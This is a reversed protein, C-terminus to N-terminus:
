EVSMRPLLALTEPAPRSGLEKDLLRVMADYHRRAADRMGLNLLTEIKFRHAVEATPALAINADALDLAGSPSGQALTWAQLWSHAQQWQRQLREGPMIAWPEHHFEGFLSGRYVGIIAQYCTARVAEDAGQSQAWAETFRQLDTRVRIAQNLLYRGDRWLVLGGGSWRLNGPDLAKRLRNILTLVASRSVDQDPYLWDTLNDRSLGEPSLLLMALIMKTKHGQWAETAVPQGSIAVEFRGFCRIELEPAPATPAPGSPTDDGQLLPRYGEQESLVRCETEAEAAGSVDGMGRRLTTQFRLAQALRWHYGLQRMRDVLPDIVAAAESWNQAALALQALPFHFDTMAPHSLPLARLAIAARCLQGAAALDGALRALESQGIQCQAALANDGVRVAWAAAAAYDQQAGAVDGLHMLTRGRTFRLQAADRQFNLATALSLGEEVQALAHAHDGRYNAVSAWNQYIVPQPARGAARAMDIARRYDGEAAAFRGRRTAILGLNILVKSQGLADEAKAFAVLAETLAAEAKDAENAGVWHLGLVNLAFARGWHDSLPLLRLAVEASERDGPRGTAGFVAGLLARARGAILPDVHDALDQLCAETQQFAGHQRDVEARLLRWWPDSQAAVPFTGLLDALGGTDGSTLYRDAEQQLVQLADDPQGNALHMAIASVPDLQPGAAATIARREAATFRDEGLRLLCSRFLPHFVFSGNSLRQVFLHRRQMSGINAAAQDDGLARRCLEPELEPLLAAKLMFTQLAGSQRHFVEEALYGFSTEPEQVLALLREADITGHEQMAHIALMLGAVWGDTAAVLTTLEDTSLSLGTMGQLLTALESASFRLAPPGVDVIQQRVRWQGLHLRAPEERSTILLQFNDPLAEILFAVVELAAGDELNHLDDMVLCHDPVETWADLLSELVSTWAEPSSALLPEVDAPVPLGSAQAGALLLRLFAERGAEGPGLNLWIAPMGQEALYARVVTSKGYGPGAAVLTARKGRGLALRALLAPRTVYVAPLEPPNLKRRLPAQSRM